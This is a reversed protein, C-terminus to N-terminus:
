TQDGECANHEWEAVLAENRTGRGPPVHPFSRQPTAPEASNAACALELERQSRSPGPHAARCSRSAASSQPVAVSSMSARVRDRPPRPTRVFDATAAANADLCVHAGICNERLGEAEIARRM